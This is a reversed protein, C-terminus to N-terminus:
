LNSLIDWNNFKTKNIHKTMYYIYELEKNYSQVEVIGINKWYKMVRYRFDKESLSSSVILHHHIKNFSRDFENVFIGDVTNDYHRLNNYLLKLKRRSVSDSKMPLNYSLGVMYDWDRNHNNVSYDRFWDGLDWRYKEDKLINNYRM